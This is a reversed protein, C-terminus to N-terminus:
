LSMRELMAIEDRLKGETAIKEMQNRELSEGSRARVKLDEIQSLRERLRRIAREEKSITSPAAPPPVNAKAGTM